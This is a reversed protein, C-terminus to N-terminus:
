CIKIYEELCYREIKVDILRECQDAFRGTHTVLPTTRLSRWPRLRQRDNRFDAIDEDISRLLSRDAFDIGVDNFDGLDGTDVVHLRCEICSYSGASDEEDIESSSLNSSRGHSENQLVTHFRLDFTLIWSLQEDFGVRQFVFGDGFCRLLGVVQNTIGLFQAVILFSAKTWDSSRVSSSDYFEVLCHQEDIRIMGERDQHKM